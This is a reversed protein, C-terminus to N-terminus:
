QFYSNGVAYWHVRFVKKQEVAMVYENSLAMQYEITM